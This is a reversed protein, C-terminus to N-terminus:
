KIITTIKSDQKYTDHFCSLFNLAGMCLPKDEIFNNTVTTFSRFLKKNSSIMGVKDILDYFANFFQTATQKDMNEDSFVNDIVKEIGMLQNTNDM